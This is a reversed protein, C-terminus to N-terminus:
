EFHKLFDRLLHLQSLQQKTMGQKYLKSIREILYSVDRLSYIDIMDLIFAQRKLSEERLFKSFVKDFVM